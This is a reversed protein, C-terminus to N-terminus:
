LANGPSPETGNLFPQRRSRLYGTKGVVRNEQMERGIFPGV